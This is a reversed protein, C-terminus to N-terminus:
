DMWCLSTLGVWLCSEGPTCILIRCQAAPICSFILHWPSAFLPCFAVFWRLLILCLLFSASSHASLTVRPWWHKHAFLDLGESVCYITTGEVHVGIINELSESIKPTQPVVLNIERLASLHPQGSASQPFCCIWKKLPCMCHSALPRESASFKRTSNQDHKLSTSKYVVYSPLAVIFWPFFLDNLLDTNGLLDKSLVTPLLGDSTQQSM